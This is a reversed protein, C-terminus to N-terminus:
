KPLIFLVKKEQVSSYYRHMEAPNKDLLISRLHNRNVTTVSRYIENSHGHSAVVLHRLVAGEHAILVQSTGIEEPPAM